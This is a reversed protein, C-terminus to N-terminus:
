LGIDERGEKIGITESVIYRPRSKIEEYIKSLYLGIIGLSFMIVSGIILLLLIVTTFGEVAKGALKMYVTQVSAALAFIFFTVGFITVIQMPITTYSTISNIALMFLSKFSWRSRDEKRKPVEFYVKTVKFGVWSSMARFFTQREPMAKIIDVVSRDMLKFDSANELDIGSTARLLKYFLNAFFRNIFSEKGRSSKRGEVIDFDNLLWLKYMEVVINPPHQLDCDMVVCCDGKAFDLGAFIASEKGFNRSFKVAKINPYANTNQSIIKWTSDFSGDDVFVIEFPINELTMTEVVTNITNQILKEENYTPIVISLLNKL